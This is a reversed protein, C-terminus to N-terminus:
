RLEFSCKGGGQVGTGLMSEVLLEECWHSAALAEARGEHTGDGQMQACTDIVLGICVPFNSDSVIFSLSLICYGM